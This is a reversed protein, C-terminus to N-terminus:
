GGYNIKIYKNVDLINEEPTSDNEDDIMRVYFKAHDYLNKSKINAKCFEVMSDQQLISEFEDPDCQILMPFKNVAVADYLDTSKTVTVINITYIM